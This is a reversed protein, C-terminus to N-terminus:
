GQAAPEPARAISQIPYTQVPDGGIIEVGLGNGTCIMGTTSRLGIHERFDLNTTPWNTTLRYRRSAGVRVEVTNRDIVDFGTVSVSNFCERDATVGAVDEGVTGCAALVLASAFLGIRLM